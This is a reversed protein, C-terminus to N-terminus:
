SKKGTSRNIRAQVAIIVNRLEGWRAASLDEPELADWAQELLQHARKLKSPGTPKRRKHPVSVSEGNM